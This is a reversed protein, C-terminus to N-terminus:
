EDTPLGSQEGGLDLAVREFYKKHGILHKDFLKDFNSGSLSKIKEAAAKEWGAARPKEPDAADYDTAAAILILASDAGKVSLAKSLAEVKGGKALLELQAEFKVG